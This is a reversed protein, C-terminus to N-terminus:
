CANCTPSRCATAPWWGTTASTSAHLPVGAAQGRGPRAPRGATRHAAGALGLGPRPLGAGTREGGQDDLCLRSGAALGLGRGPARRLDQRDPRARRRIPRGAGPARRRPPQGPVAPRLRRRDEPLGRCLAGHGALHRLWARGAGVAHGRGHGQLHDPHSLRGRPGPRPGARRREDLAKQVDTFLPLDEPSPKAFIMPVGGAARICALKILPNALCAPRGKWAEAHTAAAIGDRFADFGEGPGGQGMYVFDVFVAAPPAGAANLVDDLLTWQQEFTPPFRGWGYGKLNEISSEDLYVM